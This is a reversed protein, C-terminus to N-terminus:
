VDSIWELYGKYRQPAIARGIQEKVACGQESIHLCNSFKCQGLFPRFEKMLAAREIPPVEPLDLSSFGPTDIVYGSPIIAVFEAHRTTHKGRGIKESIAGVEMVVDRSFINILSSKGVGSPGALVSTKGQLFSRLAELEQENSEGKKNEEYNEYNEGIASVLFVTYGVSKYINQVEEANELDTKNICIAVEIGEHEAQILYRDLLSASFSPQAAALVVLVQDINAVRPRRLENKRPLIAMLTGVFPSNKDAEIQVRDGVVPSIKMKRFLGRANCLYVGDVTDVSYQGGVGKLIVGDVM